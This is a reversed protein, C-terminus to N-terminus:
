KRLQCIKYVYVPDSLTIHPLDNVLKKQQLKQLAAYHFHGFRKHWLTSDNKMIPLAFHSLKKTDLHFSKGNM